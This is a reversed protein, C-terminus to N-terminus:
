LLCWRYLGDDASSRSGGRIALENSTLLNNALQHDVLTAPVFPTQTMVRWTTIRALKM